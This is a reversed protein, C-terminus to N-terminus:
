NVKITRKTKASKRAAELIETVIMNNELSSLAFPKLTIEKNIVAAFLAFPDNYPAKRNELKFAEEKYDSYGESIRVRLNNGDDAYVAGNVGYIEM